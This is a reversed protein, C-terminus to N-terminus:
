NTKPRIYALALRKIETYEEIKSVICTCFFVSLGIINQIPLIIWFSVPLFKIFYVSIAILAAIGYSPAVDKVQMWASYGLLKGSWHANLFFCLIGTFIGVILMPTIGVFIGVLLVPILLIKKIVELVLFLDSRGQVQLMNLNIAHLPYLSMEICILPLYMAADHWQPGILCFLLPEAVAGLAFMGIATVFMTTKIVKRYAAMLRAKDDRIESLAPYSVQQVVSTLGSSFLSAFQESRSFQGLSAPSYCKGIVFSGVQAAVRDIVASASMKWGFGWLYSFSHRSWNWSPSWKVIGWLLISYVLEKSLQQAVLAWVGYGAVAMWVGVIGSIFSAVIAAKSKKEFELRKSLVTYQISSFANIILGVGMVRIMTLLEPRGFFSAVIPACLFLVLYLVISFALNTFFATNYDEEAADTKRILASSFGSDVLANFVTIFVTVIGILGYEDPTLLRALVIGVIFTIGYSIANGAFSWGVGKITLDRLSQEAM